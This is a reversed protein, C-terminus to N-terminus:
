FGYSPLYSGDSHSAIEKAPKAKNGADDARECFGCLPAIHGTIARKKESATRHENGNAKQPKRDNTM